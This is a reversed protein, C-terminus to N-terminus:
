ALLVTHQPRRYEATANRTDVVLSSNSLILEYDISSHNTVIVAADAKRVTDVDLPASTMTNQLHRSQLHPVMPDHYIVKALKANLLQIIRLAPSERVDDVDAKYAVGILLITSDKLAKGQLNLGDALRDVVHAPLTSNIEGALEIFRTHFEYQRAKWSLYFPDVPICHGGLGPGPYFPTFGFPKTSAARIVEWTDIEMREFLLKLENVMAINVCRYINELLKAAEAVRASSVPVVREVVEGYAACAVQQCKATVGGVIKPITRTTFNKNAPDEREPSFALFYDEGPRLGTKAFIPLLVEDTTGPFTTSELVVLLGRHLHACVAQATDVVFRLDPVNGEGLPTPVCIIAADCTDLASFESYARLQGSSVLKAIRASEMHAIYSSGRNLDAVKRPDIDFGLVQFGSEAFSCALPLGAYGLGLIGVKARHSKFRERAEEFLDM